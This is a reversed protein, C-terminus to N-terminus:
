SCFWVTVCVTLWVPVCVFLWVTICVAKLLYLDEGLEFMLRSM